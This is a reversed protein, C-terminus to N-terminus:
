NVVSAVYMSAAMVVCSLILLSTFWHITARGFSVTGTVPAFTVRKVQVYRMVGFIGTMICLTVMGFRSSMVGLWLLGEGSQGLFPFLTRMAALSTRTWALLTRENALDLTLRQLRDVTAVASVLGAAQQRTETPVPTMQTGQSERGEAGGSMAASMAASIERQFEQAFFSDGSDQTLLPKARERLLRDAEPLDFVEPGASKPRSPDAPGSGHQQTGSQSCAIGLRYEGSVATPSRKRGRLHLSLSTGAPLVSSLPVIASNPGADALTLYFPAGELGFRANLAYNLAASDQGELLLITCQEMDFSM